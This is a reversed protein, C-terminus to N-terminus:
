QPEITITLGKTIETMHKRIAEQCLQQKSKKTIFAAKNILDALEDSIHLPFRKM